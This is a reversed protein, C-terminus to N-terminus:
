VIIDVMDRKSPVSFGSKEREHSMTNQEQHIKWYSKLWKSGTWRIDQSDSFITTSRFDPAECLADGAVSLFEAQIRM